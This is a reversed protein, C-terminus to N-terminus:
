CSVFVTFGTTESLGTILLTECDSFGASFGALLGIVLLAVGFTESFVFFSDFGSVFVVEDDLLM